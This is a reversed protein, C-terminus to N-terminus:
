QPSLVFPKGARYLALRERIAQRLAPPNAPTVSEAETAVKVAEDFRGLAALCAALADLAGGRRASAAVIREALLRAEAPRRALPEAHAALLWVLPTMGALLAPKQELAIAVEALAADTAATGALVLALNARADANQQDAKVAREFGARADAVRGAKLWLAAQNNHAQSYGPDLALVQAYRARAEDMRGLAELAVGENFWAAASGPQLRTVAALHVLAKDPQGLALYLAATDNRLNLHDPQRKLLVESGVADDTQMKRDVDRQLRARDADTRALVQLWLDGMEDSSRWGWAARAPPRDPNRPNAASNDFTYQVNLRTGAPLWFPSAYLYRDQWNMDWDSIRILPRRSGDPLSAWGDVQTARYHAHPQVARVEVDVPLVFSDTVVHRAAGAPVDIDQRGLRIATPTHAPPGDGFYLGIVPAIEEVKGSPRLHLQVVLDSGPDLRWSLEESLVPALQGPTWGLFHGDPYDASRAILGEYGPLPDAEDLRRSAATADVRINAHHVARNGPRFYIGTVFRAGAAPVPVAFIRFVDVGDARLSYTPLRVVADPVRGGWESPLAAPEMAADRERADTQVGPAMGTAVWAEIAAIQRDSLRRARHFDGFGPEPKWPPMFRSRTVAAIMSGRRRVDALSALSFPGDGGPRHCPLCHEAILPAIEGFYTVQAPVSQASATTALAVTLAATGICVAGIRM